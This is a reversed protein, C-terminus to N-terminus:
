LSYKTLQKTYSYILLLLLTLYEMNLIIERFFKQKPEFYTTTVLAQMIILLFISSYNKSKKMELLILPIIFLTHWAFVIPSSILYIIGIFILLRLSFKKTLLLFLTSGFFFLYSLTQAIQKPNSTFSGLIQYFYRYLSANFEQEEALSLYRTIPFLSETIFPLYSILCTAGFTLLYYFAFKVKKKRLLDALVFPLFFIPYIKTLVSLSLFFSSLIYKSKLYSYISLFLFLIVYSDVHGSYFIELILLPNLIFIAYLKKGLFKYVLYSTLLFPAIFILKGGLYGLKSFLTHSITFIIQAFPPYPTFHNKWDLLQYLYSSQFESLSPDSPVVLYPNIGSKVLWGDWFYRYIDYSFDSTKLFFVSWVLIAILTFLATNTKKLTLIKYVIFAYALYSLFTLILFKIISQDFNAMTSILFNIGLFIFLGATM